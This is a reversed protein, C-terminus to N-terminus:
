QRNMRSKQSQGNIVFKGNHVCLTHMNLTPLLTRKGRNHLLGTPTHRAHGTPTITHQTRTLARCTHKRAPINTYPRPAHTYPTVRAHMPTAHTHTHTYSRQAYPLTHRTRIPPTTRTHLAHLRQNSHFIGIFVADNSLESNRM